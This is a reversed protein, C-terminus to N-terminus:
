KDMTLLIQNAKDYEYQIDFNNHLTSLLSPTDGIKFVGAIRIQKLSSDHIVFTQDSYRNFELVAEDLTEGRFVITGQQWSLQATMEGDSIKEVQQIVGSLIAKEGKSIFLNPNNLPEQELAVPNEIHKNDAIAVRGETVWLKVKNSSLVRVDFATGVAQVVKDNAVVRLPRSTDHAVDVHIEGRSLLLLRQKPSYVVKVQSDTNLILTSGDDLLIKRQEGVSTKYALEPTAKEVAFPMLLFAGLCAFLFSAAVAYHMTYSKKRPQIQFIESLLSLRDMKDWLQALRMLVKGNEADQALWHQLEAEESKTLKRDLRAIWLSAEDFRKEQNPFDVINSM